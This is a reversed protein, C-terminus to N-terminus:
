ASPNYVTGDPVIANRLKTRYRRIGSLRAGRMNAYQLDAYRLNAGTLDAYRLDACGLDCWTLNAHRLDAYSLNAARLNSSTLNSSTLDACRLVSHSLNIAPLYLNSIKAYVLNAGEFFIESKRLPRILRVSKFRAKEENEGLKDKGEALFGIQYNCYIPNPIKMLHFGRGCPEGNRDVKSEPLTMWKGMAKTYDVKCSFADKLEATLFKYYQQKVRDGGLQIM